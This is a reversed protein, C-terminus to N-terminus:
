REGEQPSQHFHDPSTSGDGPQSIEGIDDDAGPTREFEPCAEHARRRWFMCMLLPKYDVLSSISHKCYRCDAM